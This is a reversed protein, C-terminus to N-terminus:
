EYERLIEEHDVYETKIEVSGTLPNLILTMFDEEAQDALHIVAFETLGKPFFYIYVKGQEVKDKRHMVYVDAIRIDPPVEFIELLEDEAENFAGVSQALQAAVEEEDGDQNELENKIRIAETEDGEKIVFFPEVSTQVFYKQEDLNLVLRYYEGTVAAQNYIYRMMRMMNKSTEKMDNTPSGILNVGMAMISAIIGLTILMEILTFALQSKLRSM